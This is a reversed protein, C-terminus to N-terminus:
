KRSVKRRMETKKDLNLGAQIGIVLASLATSLTRYLNMNELKFDLLRTLFLSKIGTSV